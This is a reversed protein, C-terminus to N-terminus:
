NQFGIRNLELWELELRSCPTGDVLFQSSKHFTLSQISGLEDSSHEGVCFQFHNVEGVQKSEMGSLFIVTNLNRSRTM